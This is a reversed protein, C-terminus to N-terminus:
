FSRTVRTAANYNSSPSQDADIACTGSTVLSVTNGSVTCADSTTSFTVANGSGGGTASVTFDPATAIKDAIAAFGAITQSAKGVVLDASMASSSRTADGAFSASVYGPYTGGNLGALSINGV